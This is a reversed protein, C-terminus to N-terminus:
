RWVDEERTKRAEEKEQFAKQKVGEMHYKIDMGVGSKIKFIFVYIFIFPYSISYLM